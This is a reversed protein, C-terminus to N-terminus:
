LQFFIQEPQRHAQFLAQLFASTYLVMSFTISLIVKISLRPQERNNQLPFHPIYEERTYLPLAIRYAAQISVKMRHGTAAFFYFQPLLIMRLIEEDNTGTQRRQGRRLPQGSQRRRNRWSWPKKWRKRQQPKKRLPQRGSTYRQCRGAPPARRDSAAVWPKSSARVACDPSFTVKSKWFAWFSEAVWSGDGVAKNGCANVQIMAFAVRACAAVLLMGM